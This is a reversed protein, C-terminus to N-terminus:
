SLHADERLNKIRYSLEFFKGISYFSAQAEVSM